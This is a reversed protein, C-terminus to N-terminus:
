RTSGTEIERDLAELAEEGLLRLAEKRPVRWKRGFRVGEIEGLRLKRRVSERSVRMVRAIEEPTYYLGMPTHYLVYRVCRM